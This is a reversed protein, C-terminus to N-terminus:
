GKRLYKVAVLRSDIEIVSYGWPLYRDPGKRDPHEIRWGTVEWGDGAKKVEWEVRDGWDERQDLLRQAVEIQDRYRGQPDEPKAMRTPKIGCGALLGLLSVITWIRAM